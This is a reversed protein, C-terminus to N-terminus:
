RTTSYTSCFTVLIFLIVGAIAIGIVVAKDHKSSRVIVPRMRSPRPVPYRPTKMSHVLGKIMVGFLAFVILGVFGLFLAAAVWIALSVM